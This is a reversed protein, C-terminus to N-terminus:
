IFNTLLFNTAFFNRVFKSFNPCFMKQVGLFQRSRCRHRFRNSFKFCTWMLMKLIMSFYNTLTFKCLRNSFFISDTFVQNLFYRHYHCVFKNTTRITSLCSIVCVNCRHSRLLWMVAIIVAMSAAGRFLQFPQAVPSIGQMRCAYIKTSFNWVRKGTKFRKLM